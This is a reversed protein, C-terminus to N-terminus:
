SRTLFDIRPDEDAADVVPISSSRTERDRRMMSRGADLRESGDMQARNNPRDVRDALRSRTTTSRGLFASESGGSIDMNGLPVRWGFGFRLREEAYSECPGPRVESCYLIFYLCLLTVDPPQTLRVRVSSDPQRGGCGSGGERGPERSSESGAGSGLAPTSPHPQSTWRDRGSRPEHTREHTFGM